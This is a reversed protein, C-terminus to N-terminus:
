VACQMWLIVKAKCDRPVVVQIFCLKDSLGNMDLASCRICERRWEFAELVLM